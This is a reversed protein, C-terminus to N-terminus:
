GQTLWEIWDWSRLWSTSKKSKRRRLCTPLSACHQLFTWTRESQWHEWWWMMRFFLFPNYTSECQNWQSPNLEHSFNSISYKQKWKENSVGTGCIWVSVQLKSTSSSWWYSCSGDPRCSGEQSRTYGSIQFLVLRAEGHVQFWRCM